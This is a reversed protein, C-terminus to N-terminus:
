HLSHKIYCRIKKHIILHKTEDLKKESFMVDAFTINFVTLLLLMDYVLTLLSPLSLFILFFILLNPLHECFVGPIVKHIFHYFTPPWKTVILNEPFPIRLSSSLASSPSLKKDIDYRWPLNLRFNRQSITVEALNPIVIFCGEAM